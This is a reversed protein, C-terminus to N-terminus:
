KLDRHSNSLLDLRKSQLIELSLSTSSRGDGCVYTRASDQELRDIHLSCGAGLRLTPRHAATVVGARAVETHFVPGTSINWHRESCPGASPLLCPLTVSDGLM